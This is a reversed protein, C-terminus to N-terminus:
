RNSLLWAVFVADDSTRGIPAETLLFTAVKMEKNPTTYYVHNGRRRVFVSTRPLGVQVPTCAAAKTCMVEYQQFILELSPM